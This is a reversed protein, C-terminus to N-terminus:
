IPLKSYVKQMIKKLQAPSPKPLGYPHLKRFANTIAQHYAGDIYKLPQNKAGGLYKPVPHHGEIKGAKKPYLQQAKKLEVQCPGNNHVLVRQKSVYYTHFDAVEFNHVTTRGVVLWILAIVLKSGSYTTVSDGVHLEKV